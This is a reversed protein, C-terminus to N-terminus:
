SRACPAPRSSQPSRGRSRPRRPGTLVLLLSIVLISRAHTPRSTVIATIIAATGPAEAAGTHKASTDEPKSGSCPALVPSTAHGAPAVASPVNGTPATGKPPKETVVTLPPPRAVAPVTDPIVVTVVSTTPPGFVGSMPAIEPTRELM